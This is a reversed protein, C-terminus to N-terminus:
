AIEHIKLLDHECGQDSTIQIDRIPYTYDIQQIFYWFNEQKKKAQM